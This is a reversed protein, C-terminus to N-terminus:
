SRLRIWLKIAHDINYNKSKKHNVRSFLDRINNTSLDSCNQYTFDILDELSVDDQNDIMVNLLDFVEDRGM